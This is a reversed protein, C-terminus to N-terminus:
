EEPFFTCYVILAALQVFLLSGSKDHYKNSSRTTTENGLYVLFSTIQLICLHTRNKILKNPKKTNTGRVLLRHLIGNSLFIFLSHISM